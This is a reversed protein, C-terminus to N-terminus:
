RLGRGRKPHPKQIVPGTPSEATKRKNIMEKRRTPRTSDATNEVVLIAKVLEDKSPNKIHRVAEKATTASAAAKSPAKNM